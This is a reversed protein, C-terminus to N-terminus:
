KCAKLFILYKISIRKQIVGLMGTQSCIIIKMERKIRFTPQRKFGNIHKEKFKVRNIYNGTIPLM